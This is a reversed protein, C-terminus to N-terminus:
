QLDVPNEDEIITLQHRARTMGVYWVRIENERDEEWGELSNATTSNLLIVHDAERGKSGHITSIRVKPEVASLTGYEKMLQRLYFIVRNDYNARGVFELVDIEHDDLRDQDRRSWWKDLGWALSRDVFTLSPVTEINQILAAIASKLPSPRGNLNVYPIGLDILEPEFNQRLSHNRYLILTDRDDIMEIVRTGIVVKGDHGELAAFPKDVRGPIQHILKEAANKIEAPLRYSQGLVVPKADGNSKLFMPMGAPDAGAWAFIAQDDDGAIIYNTARRALARVVRWQMESLDQAEDVVLLDIPMDTADDAIIEAGLHLMDTFDVFGYTEKWKDYTRMYYKFWIPNGPPDKQQEYVAMPDEGRARALGYIAYAREGDTLEETSGDEKIRELKIEIGSYEAYDELKRNDIVRGRNLGAMRYCLSHLTGINVKDKIRGALEAAGAKSFSLLYTNAPSVGGEILAAVQNKIYTTKGTGPPGFVVERIM